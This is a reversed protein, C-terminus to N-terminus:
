PAFDVDAAPNAAKIQAVADRGRAETRSTFVVRAGKSCLIKTAELGLGINGGTIAYTKGSLNPLREPTWGM